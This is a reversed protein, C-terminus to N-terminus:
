IKIKIPYEMQYLDIYHKYEHTSMLLTHCISLITHDAQIKKKFFYCICRNSRSCENNDGNNYWFKVLRTEVFKIHLL